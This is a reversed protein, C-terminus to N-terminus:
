NICELTKYLLQHRIYPSCNILQNNLTQLWSGELVQHSFDMSALKIEMDQKIQCKSSTISICICTCTVPPSFSWQSTDMCTHAHTYIPTHTDMHRHRHTNNNTISNERVALLRAEEVVMQQEQLIQCWNLPIHARWIRSQIQRSFTKWTSSFWLRLFCNLTILGHAHEVISM